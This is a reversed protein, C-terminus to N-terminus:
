NLRVKDTLMLVIIFIVCKIFFFKFHLFATWLGKYRLDARFYQPRSCGCHELVLLVKVVRM